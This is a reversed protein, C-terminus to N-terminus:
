LLEMGYLSPVRTPAHSAIEVALYEIVALERFGRAVRLVGRSPNRRRCPGESQDGVLEDIKWLSGDPNALPPGHTTWRFDAHTQADVIATINVSTPQAAASPEIQHGVL